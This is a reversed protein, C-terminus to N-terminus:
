LSTERIEKIGYFTDRWRIGGDRLNVVMTRLLVYGFLMAYLPSLLALLIPFRGVRNFIGAALVYLGLPCCAVMFTPTGFHTIPLVLVFAGTAFQTLSTMVALPVQFNFGAFLNKELGVFCDRLTRYWEVHFDRTGNWLDQRYGSHKVLKGLFIDDNPTLRLREMGGIKEYVDRRILNFAGTGIFEKAKPNKARWPRMFVAINFGFFGLFGWVFMSRSYMRTVLALHDLDQTVFNLVVRRLGDKSHYVDADTLLLLDGTAARSAQHLAHNKGTWGPPLADVRLVRLPPFEGRLRDLIGPTDDTSRDDVVIVELSPYDSALVSRLAGEISLAENRAPVLISVKPWTNAAPAGLHELNPTHRAYLLVALLTSAFTVLALVLIMVPWTRPAFPESVHSANAM